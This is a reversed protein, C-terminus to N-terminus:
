GSCTPRRTAARTRAPSRTSTSRRSGAPEAGRDARAGRADDAPAGGPQRPLRRRRRRHAGDAPHRHEFMAAARRRLQDARGARGLQRGEVGDAGPRDPHGARPHRRDGEDEHRDARRRAAEPLRQAAAYRVAAVRLRREGQLAGRVRSRQGAPARADVGARPPHARRAARAPHLRRLRLVAPAADARRGVPLDDGARRGERDASRRGPSLGGRLDLLGAPQPRHLDPLHSRVQRQDRLDALLHAAPSGRLARLREPLRARGQDRLRLAPHRGEHLEAVQRLLRHRVVRRGRLPRARLM